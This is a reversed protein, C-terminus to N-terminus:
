AQGSPLLWVVLLLSGLPPIRSPWRSSQGGSGFTGAAGPLENPACKKLALSVFLKQLVPKFSQLHRSCLSPRIYSFNQTLRFLIKSTIRSKTIVTKKTDGQVLCITEIVDSVLKRRYNWTSEVNPLIENVNGIFFNLIEKKQLLTILFLVYAVATNPYNLPIKKLKKQVETRKDSTQQSSTEDAINSFIVGFKFLRRYSMTM